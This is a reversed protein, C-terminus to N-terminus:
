RDNVFARIQSWYGRAAEINNHDANPDVILTVKGKWKEALRRTHKPPIVQDKEGLFCLLPLDISPARSISDFSHKLLWGVPAFPFRSQAVAKISDYPSVLIVKGVQRQSALYVAVGSGLSRGMVVVNEPQFGHRKIMADYITLADSFLALESPKGGSKGYGRYNFTALSIGLLHRKNHAFDVVNEANGSFYILLPKTTHSREKILWGDLTTGDAAALTTRAGKHQAEIAKAAQPRDPQPYFILSDQMVYLAVCVVVFAGAAIAILTMAIRKLWHSQPPPNDTM